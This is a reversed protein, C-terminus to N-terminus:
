FWEPELQPEASGLVEKRKAVYAEMEEKIAPDIPPPEFEKLIKQWLDAARATTDRSGNEQWSEYNQWDSLFPQYFATKYRQATHDCGFFHGGPGKKLLRPL